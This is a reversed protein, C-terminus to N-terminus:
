IALDRENSPMRRGQLFLSAGAQGAEPLVDDIECTSIIMRMRTRM